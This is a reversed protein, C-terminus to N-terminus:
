LKFRSSYFLRPDKPRTSFELSENITLRIGLVQTTTRQGPSLWRHRFRTREWASGRQSALWKLHLFFLSPWKSLVQEPPIRKPLLNHKHQTLGLVINASALFAYTGLNKTTHKCVLKVYTTKVILKVRKKSSVPCARRGGAALVTPLLPPWPSLFSGRVLTPAPRDSIDRCNRRTVPM